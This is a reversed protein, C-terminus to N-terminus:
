APHSYQRVGGSAGLRPHLGVRRQTAQFDRGADSVVDCVPLGPAGPPCGFRRSLQSKSLMHPIYGQEQLLEQARKYKGGFFLAAVIATRMVEADSMQCQPDERHHLAILLDACLCYVLIIHLDM